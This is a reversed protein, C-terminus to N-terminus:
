EGHAEQRRSRDAARTTLRSYVTVGISASAGDGPFRLFHHRPQRREDRRQAFVGPQRCIRTSRGASELRCEVHCLARSNLSVHLLGASAPATGRRRRRFRDTRTRRACFTAHRACWDLRRAPLRGLPLCVREFRKRGAVHRGTSESHQDASATSHRQVELALAPRRVQWLSTADVMMRIVPDEHAKWAKLVVWPDASVDYVHIYGTRFGAWLSNRVGVLASVCGAAVRQVQACSYTSRDWVSIFGNDHGLFVLHDQEPAIASASVAGVYGASEPTVLPRNLLSFAGGRSGTPDFIRIQPSRMSVATSGPKSTPGSSTWLEDGLLSMWTQQAPLRQQATAAVALSGALGGNESWVLVKGSEDVTIMSRGHRAISTVPYSHAHQRAETVTLQEVDVEFLHGEKTGCWLYRGEDEPRDADAARWAVSLFKQQDNCIPISQSTVGSSSSYWLHLRHHATVVRSGRVTWASFQNTTQVPRRTRLTPPRRNAFTADPFEQGPAIDDGEGESSGDGAGSGNQMSPRKPPLKEAAVATRMPPPPPVYATTAAAIASLEPAPPASMAPRPPLPVAPAPQGRAPLAPAVGEARSPLFSTAQQNQAPPLPRAPIPPLGAPGDASVSISNSPSRTFPISLAQDHSVSGTAASITPSLPSAAQRPRNPLAPMTINIPAPSPPQEHIAPRPPIVPRGVADVSANELESGEDDSSSHYTSDSSYGDNSSVDGTEFPSLPVSQSGPASIDSRPRLNTAINLAPASNSRMGIMDPAGAFRSVLSRVSTAPSASNVTATDPTPLESRAQTAPAGDEQGLTPAETAKDQSMRTATPAAPRPPPPRRISGQSRLLDPRDIKNEEVVGARPEELPLAPPSPVSATTDTREDATGANEGFPDGGEEGDGDEVAGRSSNSDRSLTASRSGPELEAPGLTGNQVERDAGSAVAGAPAPGREQEAGDDSQLKQALQTPKPAPAPRALAAAPKPAPKPPAAPPTTALQEFRARLSSFSQPPDEADGSM